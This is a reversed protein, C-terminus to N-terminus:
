VITFTELQDLKAEFLTPIKPTPSQVLPSAFLTNGDWSLQFDVIDDEKATRLAPYAM